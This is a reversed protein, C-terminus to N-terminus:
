NFQKLSNDINPIRDIEKKYYSLNQLLKLLYQLNQYNYQNVVSNNSFRLYVQEISKLNSKLEQGLIDIDIAVNQSQLKTILKNTNNILEQNQLKFIPNSNQSLFFALNISVLNNIDNTIQQIFINKLESDYGLSTKQNDQQQNTLQNVQDIIIKEKEEITQQNMKTLLNSMKNEFEINQDQLSKVQDELLQKEQQLEYNMSEVTELIIVTKEFIHKVYSFCATNKELKKFIDYIKEKVYDNQNTIYSELEIKFNIIVQEMQKITRITDKILNIMNEVQSQDIDKVRNLNLQRNSQFEQFEQLLVKMQNITQEQEIKLKQASKQFQADEFEIKISNEDINKIQQQITIEQFQNQQKNLEIILNASKKNVSSLQRMLEENVSYTKDLQQRLGAIQEEQYKIQQQYNLSEEALQFLKISQIENIDQQLNLREVVEKNQNSWIQLLFICQFKRFVKQLVFLREDKNAGNYLAYPLIDTLISVLNQCDKLKCGNIM